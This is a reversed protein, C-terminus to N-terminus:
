IKNNIEVMTENNLTNENNEHDAYFLVRVVYNSCILHCEKM